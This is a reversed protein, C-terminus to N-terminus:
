PYGSLKRNQEAAEETVAKIALRGVASFEAKGSKINDILERAEDVSDGTMGSLGALFIEITAQKARKWMAKRHETLGERIDLGLMNVATRGRDSSWSVCGLNNFSLHESPDDLYPNLLEPEESAEKGPQTAHKGNIVPFRNGKGIKKGNDISITNCKGCSLLLNTWEYALWYYGPHAKHRIMIKNDDLDTVRGKPRYHEVHAHDTFIKAECYACKGHFTKELYKKPKKYLNNDIAIPQSNKHSKIHQQRKDKGDKVWQIFDKTKPVLQKIRIM